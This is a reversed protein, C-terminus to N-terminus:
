SRKWRRTAPASASATSPASSRGRAAAHRRGALQGGGHRPRQPLAGLLDGQRLEARAREGHPVDPLIGGADRLRGHRPHQHHDRRGQHRGGRLPVPLRDRHAHRGRRSWEVDEVCNRARTVQLHVMELVEEPEKQLKYKMHVPSTSIFTHIRPRAAHRVRRAPATSTRTAPAPSAPVGDRTKSASPSRRVGGRLRRESAIPFGAEIIDVGMEDLLDAVELKEELTM